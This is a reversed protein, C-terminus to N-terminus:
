NTRPKSRLSLTPKQVSPLLPIACRLSCVKREAKADNIVHLLRQSLVTPPLPSPLQLDLNTALRKFHKDLRTSSTDNEEDVEESNVASLVVANDPSGFRPNATKPTQM